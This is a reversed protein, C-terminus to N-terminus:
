FGSVNLRGNTAVKGQVSSTSVAASLIASKLASGRATSTAARLAAGGTVHPTAMSTGSYSAYSSFPVSSYIASGPAAIDVATAGYNSYSALAGTNTLAAVSIINANPYSAPYSPSSDINVGSNGAAAIFLINAQNAREIADQLAQSFGGGGWSNNTAVLDLGHRLKLNTLYDVAKIANATTGGNTGLFKASIITVNWNVGVVGSGNSEAGITGAVHTGHADISTRKSTGDYVTRDNNVFDWGNTDDVFGNGDNDVGDVPDFPNNWINADLDPHTVQVGEDIIGVVINKSGTHGAAWAEGAQSGYANVPSTGDGYLGWLSGNTYYSDTTTAQHTYIYNPEVFRVGPQSALERVADAVALGPPLTALELDGKDEAKAATRVREKVSAGVRQLVLSRSTLSAGSEYQILVENPVFPQGAPVERLDQPISGTDAEDGDVASGCGVLPLLLAASVSLLPLKFQSM